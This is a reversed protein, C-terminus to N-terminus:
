KKGGQLVSFPNRAAKEAVERAAAEEESILHRRAAGLAEEADPLRPYPDLALGLTQATVEGLDVWDGELPLLDCESESLEIEEDPRGSAVETFLLDVSEDIRAPVAEGSVVCIQDAVATVRGTVRIGAAERRVGLDAELRDLTMLGFREALAAREAPKAEVHEQRLGTGIESARVVRSFEPTTM